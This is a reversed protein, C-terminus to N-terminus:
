ARLIAIIVSPVLLVIAADSPRMPWPWIRLQMPPPVVGDRIRNGPRVGVGVYREGPGIGKRGQVILDIIAACSGPLDLSTSRDAVRAPAVAANIIRAVGSGDRGIGVRRGLTPSGGEGVGALDDRHVPVRNVLVIASWGVHGQIGAAFVGAADVNQEGVAADVEDLIRHVRDGPVAKAGNGPTLHDARIRISRSAHRPRLDPFRVERIKEWSGDGRVGQEGSTNM